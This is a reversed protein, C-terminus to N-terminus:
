AGTRLLCRLGRLRILLATPRPYLATMVQEYVTRNYAWLGVGVPTNIRTAHMAHMVTFRFVIVM